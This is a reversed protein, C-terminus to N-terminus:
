NLLAIRYLKQVSLMLIFREAVVYLLKSYATNCDIVSM